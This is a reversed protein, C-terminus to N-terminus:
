EDAAWGYNVNTPREELEASMDLRRRQLFNTLIAESRFLYPFRDRSSEFTQMCIKWKRKLGGIGWEVRVRYGAHMANFADTVEVDGDDPIERRGVRRMIFMEEGVYGPDGLLYEFYDHNHTFYQRWNKYLYSQPLCIVDHFSGPYGPDIYIFLGRHDIVVTNNLCYMSKRGNYWPRDSEVNSPRKIPILTGDILGVCGDFGPITLRFEESPKPLGVCSM